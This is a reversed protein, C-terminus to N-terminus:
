QLGDRIVPWIGPDELGLRWVAIGGLGYRKVIALKAALSHANEFYVVREQGSSLYTFYPVQAAEDWQVQAAASVALSMADPVSLGYGDTTGKRWDYAYAPIGLLVKERGIERAAYAAVQEVWAVSAVPGAEYGPLHEDYAMPAVWDALPGLAKYDFAGAWPSAPDDATKAPISLTLSLKEAKLKASLEQVLATYSSRLAPPINEIDLNIGSLGKDKATRVMNAVARSRIAPDSLVAQAVASDFVGRHLNHVLGQVKLGRSRAEAMLEPYDRTALDGLANLELQFNVLLDVQGLSNQLSSLGRPDGAWDEAYYGLLTYGGALSQPNPAPPNPAPTPSPPTVPSPVPSPTTDTPRVAGRSPPGPLRLMQGPYLMTDQLSNLWLITDVNTGALSAIRWLSDGAAVRYDHGNNWTYARDVSTITWPGAVGDAILGYDYQFRRLAERTRAGFVGDAQGTSYGLNALRRQLEMVDGGFTGSYLMRSGYSAALATTSVLLLVVLMFMGITRARNQTM